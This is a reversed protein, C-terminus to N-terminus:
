LRSRVPEPGVTAGDVKYAGELAAGLVLGFMKNGHNISSMLLDSYKDELEEVKAELHAIHALYWRERQDILELITGTM